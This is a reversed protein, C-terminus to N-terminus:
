YWFLPILFFTPTLNELCLTIIVLFVNMFQIFNPRKSFYIITQYIIYKSLNEIDFKFNLDRQFKQLITFLTIIFLNVFSNMTFFILGRLSHRLYEFITIWTEGNYVMNASHLKPHVPHSRVALRRAVLFDEPSCGPPLRWM